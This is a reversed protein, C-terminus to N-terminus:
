HGGSQASAEILAVVRPLCVARSFHSLAYERGAQGRQRREESSLSLAERIADALRDPQNPEVVWGCGAAVIVNALDSGPVAQAIIPRASLMYAILKSPASALSQRGQTPLVLVDAAAYVPSTKEAPWPTYFSVQGPAVVGALRRCEELRSGAGAILLHPRNPAEALRGVAEIVGEVNAAAGINGGYALLFAGERIGAEARVPEGGEDPRIQQEDVWNPVLHVNEVPVQRDDRYQRAFYESIVIVNRSSRSIARDLRRLWRAPRSQASLRGQSVLSEPYMDQVSIVLPIRRLRAVAALIGAAFIPWTNAYIVDPRGQRLVQWGGTLGFSLNEAFRSPLSSTSSIVSFCRVIGYGAESAEWRRWSRRYGPFLQGAPRSPFATVVTVNHGRAVLAAAVQASTQASVVPEPPFVPSVIFARV